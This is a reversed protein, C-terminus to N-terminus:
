STCDRACATEAHAQARAGMMCVRAHECVQRLEVIQKRQLENASKLASTYPGMRDFTQPEGTRFNSSPTASLSRAHDSGSALKLELDLQIGTLERARREAIDTRQALEIVQAQLLDNEQQLSKITATMGEVDPGVCKEATHAPLESESIRSFEQLLLKRQCRM